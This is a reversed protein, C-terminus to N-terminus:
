EIAGRLIAVKALRSMGGSVRSNVLDVTGNALEVWQGAANLAHLRLLPRDVAPIEAPVFTIGVTINSLLETGDPGIEMVTGPIIRPDSPWTLAFRAHVPSGAPAVGAPISLRLRGGLLTSVRASGNSHFTTGERVSIAVARTLGEAMARITVEGPDVATVRGADDVTAVEADSTSWAIGQEELETDEPGIAVAELTRSSGDLMVGDAPEGTVDIRVVGIIPDGLPDTGCGAAVALLALLAATACSRARSTRMASM